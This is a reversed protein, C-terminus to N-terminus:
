WVVRDEPSDRGGQDLLAEKPGGSVPLALLGHLTPLSKLEAL